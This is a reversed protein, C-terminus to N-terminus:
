AGWFQHAPTRQGHANVISQAVDPEPEPPTAGSASELGPNAGGAPTESAIRERGVHALYAMEILRAPVQGVHEVQMGLDRASQLAEAEVARATEPQQLAPYREELEGADLENQLAIRAAREQELQQQLPTLHQQVAGGIIQQLLGQAAQAQQPDDYAEALPAYPDPGPEPQPEPEQFAEAFRSELMQEIRDYDVEIGGGPESGPAASEAGAPSPGGGPEAGAPEGTATPAAPTVENLPVGSARLREVAGPWTPELLRALELADSLMPTRTESM